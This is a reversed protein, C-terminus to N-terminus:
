KGEELVYIVFALAPIYLLCLLFWWASYHYVFVLISPILMPGVLGISFFLITLITFGLYKLYNM